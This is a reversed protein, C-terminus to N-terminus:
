WEEDEYGVEGVEGESKFYKEKILQKKFIAKFDKHYSLSNGVEELPINKVFSYEEITEILSLNQAYKNKFLYISEILENAKNYLERDSEIEM